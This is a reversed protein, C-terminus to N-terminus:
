PDLAPHVAAGGWSDATSLVVGFGGDQSLVLMTTTTLEQGIDVRKCSFGHSEAGESVKEQGDLYETYWERWRQEFM